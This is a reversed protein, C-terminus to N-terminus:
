AAARKSSRKRDRGFPDGAISESHLACLWRGNRRMWTSSHAAEVAVPKGDVTLKERVKYAVVAVDDGLMRTQMAEDFDFERLTHEADRMMQRFTAKDIRQVGQPGTVICPDDALSIATEFDKDKIAQWYQKELQVVERAAEPGAM